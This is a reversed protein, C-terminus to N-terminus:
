LILLLFSLEIFMFPFEGETIPYADPKLRQRETVLLIQKGKETQISQAVHLIIKLGRGVPVVSGKNMGLFANMFPGSGSQYLIEWLQLAEERSTYSEISITIGQM